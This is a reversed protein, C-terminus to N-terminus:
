RLHTILRISVGAGDPTIDVHDCLQRALWLGMGGQSLDEGHAPGYGIFPDDLGTGHDTVRCVLRGEGAWLRLDVPPRGHRLANTTMEDVALLFDEVRTEHTELLGEDAARTALARRLGRLDRVAHEAVLPESDELPEGPVELTELFVAPDQHDPNAVEAAGRLLVPHTARASELLPAAERRADHLCAVCLPETAAVHDLVAEFRQWERWTDPDDGAMPEILVRVVDSPGPRLRAALRRLATVAAPAGGGFVEIWDVFVVPHGALAPRLLEAVPASVVVVAVQGADIGDCLFGPAAALVAADDEVLLAAHPSCGDEDDM